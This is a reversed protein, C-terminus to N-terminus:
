FEISFTNLFVQKRLSFKWSILGVSRAFISSKRWAFYDSDEFCSAILEKKVNM